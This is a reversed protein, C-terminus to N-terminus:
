PAGGGAPPDDGAMRKDRWGPPDDGSMRKDRWRLLGIALAPLGYVAGLATATGAAIEPPEPGFVRWTVWTVLGVAWLIVVAALVRNERMWEAM